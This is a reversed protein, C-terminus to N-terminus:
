NIKRKDKRKESSEEPVRVSAAVQLHSHHTILTVSHAIFSHGRLSVPTDWWGKYTRRPKRCHDAPRSIYLPDGFGSEGVEPLTSSVVYMCVYM